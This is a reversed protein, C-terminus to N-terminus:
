LYGSGKHGNAEPPAARENRLTLEIAMVERAIRTHMAAAIFPELLPDEPNREELGKTMTNAWGEVEGAAVLAALLEDTSLNKISDIAVTSELASAEIRPFPEKKKKRRM